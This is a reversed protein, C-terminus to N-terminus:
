SINPLRQKGENSQFCEFLFQKQEERLNLIRLGLAHSKGESGDSWRVECVIRDARAQIILRNIGPDQFRLYLNLIHGNAFSVGSRIGLGHRSFSVPQFLSTDDEIIVSKPDSIKTRDDIRKLELTKRSAELVERFDAQLHTLARHRYGVQQAEIGAIRYQFKEDNEYSDTGSAEEELLEHTSACYTICDPSGAKILEDSLASSKGVLGLALNEEALNGLLHVGSVIAIQPIFIPSGNGASEKNINLVKELTKKACTMAKVAKKNESVLDDHTFHYGFVINLKTTLSGVVVGDFDQVENIIASETKKLHEFIQNISYKESTEALDAVQISMVSCPGHFDYFKIGGSATLLASRKRAPIQRSIQSTKSSKRISQVLPQLFEASALTFLLATAISISSLFTISFAFLASIAFAAGSAVIFFLALRLVLSSGYGFLLVSVICSVVLLLNTANPTDTIWSSTMKSDITSILQQNIPSNAAEELFLLVHDGPRIERMPQNRDLSYKLRALSRTARKLYFPNIQYDVLKEPHFARHQSLGLYPIKGFGTITMFPPLLPMYAEPLYGFNIYNLENLSLPIEQGRTLGLYVKNKFRSSQEDLSQLSARDNVNGVVYIAQPDRNAASKLIDRIDRGQIKDKKFAEQANKDFQFIKLKPNVPKSQNTISAFWNDFKVSQLETEKRLKAEDPLFVVLTVISALVGSVFRPDTFKSPGKSM